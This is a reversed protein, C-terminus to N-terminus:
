CAYRGSEGIRDITIDLREMKSEEAADLGQNGEGDESGEAAMLTEAKLREERRAQAKM